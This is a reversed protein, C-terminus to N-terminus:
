EIGYKSSLPDRDGPYPGDANLMARSSPSLGFEVGLRHMNRLAQNSIGILPNQILNGNTTRILLGQTGQSQAALKAIGEEAYRWRAFAMCYVALMSEDLRTFIRARTLDGIVRDWEERAYKGLYIPPEPLKPPESQDTEPTPAGARGGQLLRLPHPQPKRGRQLM